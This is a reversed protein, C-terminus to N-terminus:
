NTKKGNGTKMKEVYALENIATIAAQMLDQAMYSVEFSRTGQPAIHDDYVFSAYIDSPSDLIFLYKGENSGLFKLIGSCLIGKYEDEKETDIYFTIRLKKDGPYNEMFVASFDDEICVANDFPLVKKNALAKDLYLHVYADADKRSEAIAPLVSDHNVPSMIYNADDKLYKLYNGIPEGDFIGSDVTEIFAKYHTKEPSM